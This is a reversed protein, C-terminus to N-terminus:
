SASSYFPLCQPISPNPISPCVCLFLLTPISPSSYFLLSSYFPLCPPISPCVCLFLFPCVSLFLFFPSFYLPLSLPISPYSYVPSHLPFSPYIPSASPSHLVCLFPFALKLHPPISQCPNLISLFLLAIRMELSIAWTYKENLFLLVGCKSSPLAHWFLCQFM